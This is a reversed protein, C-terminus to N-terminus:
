HALAICMCAYCNALNSPHISTNCRYTPTHIYRAAWEAAARAESLERADGQRRLEAATHTESREADRESRLQACPHTSDCRALMPCM